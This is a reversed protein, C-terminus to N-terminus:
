VTKKSEDCKGKKMLFIMAKGGEWERWRMEIVQTDRERELRCRRRRLHHCVLCPIFSAPHAFYLFSIVSFPTSWSILTFLSPFLRFELHSDLSSSSALLYCLCRSPFCISQFFFRSSTFMLSFYDANKRSISLSYFHDFHCSFLVCTFLSDIRAQFLSSSSVSCIRRWRWWRRWGSRGGRRKPHSSFLSLFKDRKALTNLKLASDPHLSLSLFSVSMDYEMVDDFPLFLSISLSFSSALLFLFSHFPFPRKNSKSGHIAVQSSCIFPCESALFDNNHFLLSVELYSILSSHPPSFFMVSCFDNKKMKNDQDFNLFIYSIVLMLILMLILVMLHSSVPCVVGDKIFSGCVSGKFAMKVSVSVPPPFTIWPFSVLLNLFVHRSSFFLQLIEQHMEERKKVKSERQTQWEKLPTVRNIEQLRKEDPICWWWRKKQDRPLFTLCSQWPLYLYYLLLPLGTLSM